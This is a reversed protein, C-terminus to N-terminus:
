GLEAPWAAALDEPTRYGSLDFTTPLDRLAQKSTAINALETTDGAEHAKMYDRDLENFITVRAGRIKNMHIIRAKPMDIIILNNTDQEWADRFARSSPIDTEDCVLINTATGPLDRDKIFDVFEDPTMSTVQPLVRAVDEQAAPIVVAVGGSPQTYVIRKM